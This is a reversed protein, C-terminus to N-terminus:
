PENVVRMGVGIRLIAHGRTILQLTAAAQATVAPLRRSAGTVGVGLRLCRFRKCSALYGLM